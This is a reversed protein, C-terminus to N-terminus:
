SFSRCVPMYWIILQVVATLGATLAAVANLRAQWTFARELKGIPTHLFSNRGIWASAFWFVASVILFIPMLWELGSKVGCVSM